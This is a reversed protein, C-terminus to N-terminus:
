SQRLLRTVKLLLLGEVYPSWTSKLKMMVYFQNPEIKNSILHKVQHKVKVKMNVKNLVKGKKKKKFLEM